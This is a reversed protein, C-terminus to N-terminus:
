VMLRRRSKVFYKNIIPQGHLIIADTLYIGYDLSSIDIANTYPIKITMLAVFIEKFISVM